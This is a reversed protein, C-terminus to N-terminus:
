NEIRFKPESGAGNAAQNSEVQIKISGEEMRDSGVQDSVLHFNRIKRTCMDQLLLRTVTSKHKAFKRKLIICQIKALEDGILM